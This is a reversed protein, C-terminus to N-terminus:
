AEGLVERVFGTTKARLTAIREAKAAEVDFGVYAVSPRTRVNVSCEFNACILTGLTDGARGAPGAKKAGFFVVDNPLRIDRCWSCQARSRPNADAQRLVVGVLREELPVVVYARRGIKRDRWGLHDIAEWDLTDFGTPLSLDSVEKRSANVFSDRITQDTLPLM